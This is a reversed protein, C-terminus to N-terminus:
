GCKFLLVGVISTCSSMGEDTSTKYFLIIITRWPSESAYEIAYEGFHTISRALLTAELPPGSFVLFCSFYPFHFFHPLHSLLWIRERGNLAEVVVSRRGDSRFWGERLAGQISAYRLTQDQLSRLYRYSNPDFTEEIEAPPFKLEVRENCKEWAVGKPSYSATHVHVIVTGNNDCGRLSLRQAIKPKRRISFNVEFAWIAKRLKAKNIKYLWFYWM